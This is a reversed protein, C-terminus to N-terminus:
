LACIWSLFASSSPLSLSILSFSTECSAARHPRLFPSFVLHLLAQHYQSRNAGKGDAQGSRSQRDDVQSRGAIRIGEHEYVTMTMMITPIM